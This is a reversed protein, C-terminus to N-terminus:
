VLIKPLYLWVRLKLFPSLSCFFFFFSSLIEEWLHKRLLIFLLTLFGFIYFYFVKNCKLVNKKHFIWQGILSHCNKIFDKLLWCSCTILICSWITGELKSFLIKFSLFYPRNGVILLDKDAQFWNLFIRFIFGLSMLRKSRLVETM